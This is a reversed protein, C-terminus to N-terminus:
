AQLRKEYDGKLAQWHDWFPKPTGGSLRDALIDLHAHWGAGIMLLNRHDSIRRHVCTLLVGDGAAALTFTVDGGGWSFSLRHPPEIAIIQSELSNEAGFGEPRTGPPDTLEDNRWILTFPEGAREPMDGAALWKQRLDSDALYSWVRDITGPLLREITLTAPETLRGYPDIATITTMDTM